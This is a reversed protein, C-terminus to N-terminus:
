LSDSRRQQRREWWRDVVAGVIVGSALSIAAQVHAAALRVLDDTITLPAMIFYQFQAGVELAVVFFTIRFVPSRWRVGYRRPYRSGPAATM